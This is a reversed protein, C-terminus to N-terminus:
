SARGCKSTADVHMHAARAALQSDSLRPFEERRVIQGFKTAVQEFDGIFSRYDAESKFAYVVAHFMFIDGNRATTGGGAYNGACYIQIQWERGDPGPPASRSEMGYKPGLKQIEAYLDMTSRGKPRIDVDSRFTSPISNLDERSGCGFLLTASALVEAVM